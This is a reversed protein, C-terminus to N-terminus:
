AYLICLIIRHSYFSDLNVTGIHDYSSISLSRFPCSGVAESTKKTPEFTWDKSIIIGVSYTM